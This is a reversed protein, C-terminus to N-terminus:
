VLADGGAILRPEGQHWPKNALSRSLPSPLLPLSGQFLFSERLLRQWKDSKVLKSTEIPRSPNSGLVSRNHAAREAM